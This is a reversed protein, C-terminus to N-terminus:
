SPKHVKGYYKNVHIIHMKNILKDGCYEWSTNENGGNRALSAHTQNGASNYYSAHALRITLPDHYCVFYGVMVWGHTLIFQYPHGAIYYNSEQQEKLEKLDMTDIQNNAM